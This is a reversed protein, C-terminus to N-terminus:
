CGIATRIARVDEVIQGASERTISKGVQARVELVFSRLVACTAHGEQSAFHASARRLKNQLSKGPGVGRVRASLSDFLQAIPAAIFGRSQLPNFPDFPESLVNFVGIVQGLNNIDNSFSEFVSGVGLAELQPQLDVLKGNAYVIAHTGGPARAFGAVQELDNIAYGVSLNGVTGGLVGLDTM